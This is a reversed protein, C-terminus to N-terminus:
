AKLESDVQTRTRQQLYEARGHDFAMLLADSHGSYRHDGSDYAYGQEVAVSIREEFYDAIERFIEGAGIDIPNPYNEVLMSLPLTVYATDGRVVTAEIVVARIAREVAHSSVGGFKSGVLDRFVRKPLEFTASGTEFEALM